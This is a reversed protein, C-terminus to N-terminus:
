GANTREACISWRSTICTLSDARRREVLQRLVALRAGDSSRLTRLFTRFTRTSTLLCLVIL